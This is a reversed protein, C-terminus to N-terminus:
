SVFACFFLLVRAFIHAFLRLFLWNIKERDSERKTIMKNEEKVKHNKNKKWDYTALNYFIEGIIVDHCRKESSSIRKKARKKTTERKWPM